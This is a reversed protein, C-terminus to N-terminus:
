GEVEVISSICGDACPQRECGALAGIVLTLLLAWMVASWCRMRWTTPMYRESTEHGISGSPYSPPTGFNYTRAM